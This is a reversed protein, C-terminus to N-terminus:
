APSVVVLLEVLSKLIPQPSFDQTPAAQTLILVQKDASRPGGGPAGTGDTAPPTPSVQSKHRYCMSGTRYNSFHIRHEYSPFSVWLCAFLARGLGLGLGVVRM